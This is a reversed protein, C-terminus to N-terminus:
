PSLRRKGHIKTTPLTKGHDTDFVVTRAGTIDFVVKVVTNDTVVVAVTPVAFPSTDSSKGANIM